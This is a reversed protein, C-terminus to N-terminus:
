KILTHRLIHLFRDNIHYLQATIKKLENSFYHFAILAPIAVILGALTVILAEAM